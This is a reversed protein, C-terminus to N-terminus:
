RRLSDIVAGRLSSQMNIGKLLGLSNTTANIITVNQIKQGDLTNQIVTGLSGASILTPAVVNGSGSQLLGMSGVNFSAAAGATIRGLDSVNLSTTTVLAGNIYTAREIGFSINLGAVSFGGRVRDLSSETVAVQKDGFPNASRSSPAPALVAPAAAALQAGAPLAAPEAHSQQVSGEVVLAAAFSPPELPLMLDVGDRAIDATLTASAAIAADTLAKEQAKVARAALKRLRRAPGDEATPQAATIHGLMSIVKDTQTTVVAQFEVPRIKGVEDRDESLIAGLSRLVKNSQSEVAVRVREIHSPEVTRLRISPPAIETKVRPAPSGEATPAAYLVAALSEFLRHTPTSGASAATLSAAARPAAVTPELRAVREIAPDFPAIPQVKVRALSAAQALVRERRPTTAGATKEARKGTERTASKGGTNRSPPRPSDREVIQPEAAVASEVIVRPAQHSIEPGESGGEGPAWDDRGMTYLVRVGATATRDLPDRATEWVLDTSAGCAPMAVMELQTCTTGPLPQTTNGIADVVPGDLRAAPSSGAHACPAVGVGILSILLAVPTPQHNM